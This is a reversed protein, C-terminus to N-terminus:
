AKHEQFWWNFYYYDNGTITTLIDKYRIYIIPKDEETFVDEVEVVANVPLMVISGMSDDYTKVDTLTRYVALKPKFWNMLARRIVGEFKIHNERSFGVANYFPTELKSGTVAAWNKFTGHYAKEEYEFRLYMDLSGNSNRYIRVIKLDEIEFNFRTDQGFLGPSNAYISTIIGQLRAHQQSLEQTHRTFPDINLGPDNVNGYDGAAECIFDQFNQLNKM